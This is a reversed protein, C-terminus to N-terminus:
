RAAGPSSYWSARAQDNPDEHRRAHFSESRASRVKPMKGVFARSWGCKGNLQQTRAPILKGQGRAASMVELIDVCGGLFREPARLFFLRLGVEPRIFSTTSVIEGGIKSPDSLSM